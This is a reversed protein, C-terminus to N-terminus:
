HFIEEYLKKSHVQLSSEEAQVEEYHGVQNRVAEEGWIHDERLLGERGQAGYEYMGEQVAYLGVLLQTRVSDDGSPADEAFHRFTGKARGDDLGRGSVQVDEAAFGRRLPRQVNVLHQGGLEAIATRPSKRPKGARHVSVPLRRSFRPLGTRVTEPVSERVPGFRRRDRQDSRGSTQM